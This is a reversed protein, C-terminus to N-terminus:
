EVALLGEVRGEVRVLRGRLAGLARVEDVQGVVEAVLVGAGDHDAADVDVAVVVVDRHAVHLGHRGVQLPLQDPQPEELAASAARVLAEGHLLSPIRSSTTSSSGRMAAARALPRCASPNTTWTAGSPGVPSSSARNPPYSATRRSTISGPM